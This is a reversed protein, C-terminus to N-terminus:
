YIVLVYLADMRVWLEREQEDVKNDGNVDAPHYGAKQIDEGM